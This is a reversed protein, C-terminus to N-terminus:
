ALQVYKTVFTQTSQTHISYIWATSEM